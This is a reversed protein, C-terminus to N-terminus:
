ATNITAKGFRKNRFDTHEGTMLPWKDEWNDIIGFKRRSLLVKNIYGLDLPIGFYEVGDTWTPDIVKRDEDVCWAHLTPIISLAYGEVYILGHSLSLNYANMFCQKMEMQAIDSPRPQAVCEMGEQLIFDYISSYPLDTSKDPMLDVMQELYEKMM